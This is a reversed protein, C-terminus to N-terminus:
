KQAQMEKRVRRALDDVARYKGSYGQIGLAARIEPCSHGDRIMQIVGEREDDTLCRKIKRNDRTQTTSLYRRMRDCCDYAEAEAGYGLGCYECTYDSVGRGDRVAGTFKGIETIVQHKRM